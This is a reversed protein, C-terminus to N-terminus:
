NTVAGELVDKIEVRQGDKYSVIWAEKVGMERMYKKFADAEWYDRFVGITYKNMGDGDETSFNPNNGAYKSLDKNKFAGIQVKFVIGEDPNGAAYGAPVAPNKQEEMQAIQGKLSRVESKCSAIDQNKAELQSEADQLDAQMISLQSKMKENSEVLEKFEEPSMRKQKKKWEKMMSKYEKPTMDDQAYVYISSVLVAFVIIIVRM